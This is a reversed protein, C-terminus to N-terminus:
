KVEWILGFLLLCLGALGIANRWFVLDVDPVMVGGALLIGNQLALCAFCLASWFLLRSRSRLYGRLLLVACGLSTLLCLTYVVPAFM